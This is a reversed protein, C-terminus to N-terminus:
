WGVEIGDAFAGAVAPIAQLKSVDVQVSKGSWVEVQRLFVQGALLLLQARAEDIPLYRLAIFLDDMTAKDPPLAAVVRLADRTKVLDARYQPNEALAVEAGQRGLDRAGKVLPALQDPTVTSCGLFLLATAGGLAVLGMLKNSHDTDKDKGAGVQEDSRHNDRAFFGVGATGIVTMLGAVGKVWKPLETPDILGTAMGGVMGGGIAGMLGFTTTMWSKM